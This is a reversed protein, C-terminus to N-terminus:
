LVLWCCHRVQSACFHKKINYVFNEYKSFVFSLMTSFCENLMSIAELFKDYILSVKSLNLEKRSIVSEKKDYDVDHNFFAKLGVFRREINEVLMWYIFIKGILIFVLMFYICQGLNASQLLSVILLFAFIIFYIIISIIRLSYDFNNKSISRTSPLDRLFDDILFLNELIDPFHRRKNLVAMDLFTALITALICGYNIYYISSVIKDRRYDINMYIFIGSTLIAILFSVSHILGFIRRRGGKELHFGFVNVFTIFLFFPM